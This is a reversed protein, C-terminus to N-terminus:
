LKELSTVPCANCDDNINEVNKLCLKGSLLLKWRLLDLHHLGFILEIETLIYVYIWIFDM